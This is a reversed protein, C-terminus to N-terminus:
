DAIVICRGYICDAESWGNIKGRNNGIQFLNGKIAKILHLYQVGNIKCLVIRGRISYGHPRFSVSEGALLKGISATVWGM